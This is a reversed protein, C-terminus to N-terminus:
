GKKVKRKAMGKSKGNKKTRKRVTIKATQGM